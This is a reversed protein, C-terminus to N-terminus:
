RDPMCVDYTKLEFTEILPVHSIGAALSVSAAALVAVVPWKHTSRAEPGNVSRESGRLHCFAQLPTLRAAEVKKV